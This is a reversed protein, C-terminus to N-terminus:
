EYSIIPSLFWGDAYIRNRPIKAAPEGTMQEIAWASARAAWGVSAAHKRLDPLASEAKMRGLSIACMQRVQEMEPELSNTDNLREVMVKVLDEQPKGEHIWGLAWAAAPRSNLGMMMNKPLHARLLSEAEAYRLEGMVIFLHAVQDSFGPMMNNIKGSQFGDYVSQAHELMGPLLEKIKLQGLGWATAVKVEGREHGLLEVMRPGAPKHDLKALVFAAQECGRWADEALVASAQEIVADRLEPEEALGLLGMAAERRLAPNKDDLLSALPKMRDVKKTAIMARACAARVKVDPSSLFDDVRAEVLQPDIRLLQTIAGGVVALRLDGLMSELLDITDTSTELSMLEIALLASTPDTATSKAQLKGALEALGEAHLGALARAAALRISPPAASHEVLTILSENAESSGLEMLGDIALLMLTTTSASERVRELWVDRMVPSKWAALAPEVIQSVTGLHRTAVKALSPAETKADLKILANATSRILDLNQDPANMIALLKSRLQDANKLGAVHAIALSDIAMRQLEADPREIAKTWLDLLGEPFDLYDDTTQVDPSAYMVMDYRAFPDVALAVPSGHVALAIAWAWASRRIGRLIMRAFRIVRYAVQSHATFRRWERISECIEDQRNRNGFSGVSRSNIAM